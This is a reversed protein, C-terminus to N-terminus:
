STIPSQRLSLPTLRRRARRCNASWSAMGDILERGDQLRLRVGHASDVALPPLHAPMASYPHWVLRRDLDLLEEGSAIPVSPM